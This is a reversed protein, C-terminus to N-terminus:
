EALKLRVFEVLKEPLNGAALARNYASRAEVAKGQGAWALGLGMWWAGQDAQSKLALEYQRAAEPHRKLRLLLSALTARYEANVGRGEVGSQLTAAAGELEGRAAEMRALNLVFWTNDPAAVRGDRLVAEAERNQGAESLLTALTQRAAVHAPSLSVAEELLTRAQNERGKQVLTMAKRYREEAEEDASPSLLAKSITSSKVPPATPQRPLAPESQATPRVPELSLQGQMDLGLTKVPAVVSNPQLKSSDPAASAASEPREATPVELSPLVPLEPKLPKAPSAAVAPPPQTGIAAPAPSTSRAVEPAATQPAAAIRAVAALPPSAVEAPRFGFWTALGAVPLLLLGAIWLGRRPPSLVPVPNVAAHRSESGAKRADLDRLTQNIISM